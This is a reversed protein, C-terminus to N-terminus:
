KPRRLSPLLKLDKETLAPDRRAKEILADFADETMGHWSKHNTADKPNYPLELEIAPLMKVQAAFMQMVRNFDIDKLNVEAYSASFYLETYERDYRVGYITGCRGGTSSMGRMDLQFTEPNYGAYYFSDKLLRELQALKDKNLSLLGLAKKPHIFAECDNDGEREQLHNKHLQNLVHKGLVELNCDPHAKGYLEKNLLKWVREMMMNGLGGMINTAKLPKGEKLIALKLGCGCGNDHVHDPGGFSFTYAKDKVAKLFDLTPASTFLEGKRESDLRIIFAYILKFREDQTRQSEFEQWTM